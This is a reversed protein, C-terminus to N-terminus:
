SSSSLQFKLWMIMVSPCSVSVIPVSLIMKMIKWLIFTGYNLSMKSFMLLWGSASWRILCTISPIPYVTLVSYWRIFADSRPLINLWKLALNPIFPGGRKSNTWVLPDNLISYIWFYLKLVSLLLNATRKLMLTPLDIFLFHFLTDSLTISKALLKLLSSKNATM